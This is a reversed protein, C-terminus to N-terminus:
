KRLEKKRRYAAHSVASVTWNERHFLNITRTIFPWSYGLKRLRIAEDAPIARTAMGRM